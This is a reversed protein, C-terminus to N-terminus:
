CCQRLQRVCSIKFEHVSRHMNGLFNHLYEPIKYENQLYKANEGTYLKVVLERCTKDIKDIAEPFKLYEVKSNKFGIAGLNELEDREREVDIEKEQEQLEIGEQSELYSIRPLDLPHNPQGDVPKFGGLHKGYHIMMRVLSVLHIRIKISLSKKEQLFDSKNSYANFASECLEELETM